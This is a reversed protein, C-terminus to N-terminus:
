RMRGSARCFSAGCDLHLLGLDAGCGRGLADCRALLHRGGHRAPDADDRCLLHPGIAALAGGESVEFYVYGLALVAVISLRRSILVVARVDGSVMAGETRASLWAPVVIHNSVMTALAITAVIVMSTASSLGGLFVLMALGQRGEALPLTLVFLDPDAGDPM